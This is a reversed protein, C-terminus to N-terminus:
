EPVLLVRRVVPVVVPTVIAAPALKVTLLLVSPPVAFLLSVFLPESVSTSEPVM